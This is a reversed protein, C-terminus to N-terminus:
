LDLCVPLIIDEGCEVYLVDYESSIAYGVIQCCKSCLPMIHVREYYYGRKVNLVIDYSPDYEADDHGRFNELM